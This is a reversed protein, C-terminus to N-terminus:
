SLVPLKDRKCNFTPAILIYTMLWKKQDCHEGQASQYIYVWCSLHTYSILWCMFEKPNMNPGNIVARVKPDGVKAPHHYDYKNQCYSVSLWKCLVTCLLAWGLPCLMLYLPLTSSLSLLFIPHCCICQKRLLSALSPIPLIIQLLHLLSCPFFPKSFSSFILCPSSSTKKIDYRSPIVSVKEKPDTPM